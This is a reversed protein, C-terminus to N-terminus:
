RFWYLRVGWTFCGSIEYRNQIVATWVVKNGSCCQTEKRSPFCLHVFRSDRGLQKCSTGPGPALSLSHHQVPALSSTGQTHGQVGAGLHGRTSTSCQLPHNPLSSMLWMVWHFRMSQVSFLNFSSHSVSPTNMDAGCNCKSPVKPLTNHELLM